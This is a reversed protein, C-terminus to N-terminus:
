RAMERRAERVSTELDPWPARGPVSDRLFRLVEAAQADSLVAGFAPMLPGMTEDQAEIGGLVARAANRPTPANLATNLLLSPYGAQATPTNNAHCIACAGAFITAGADVISGTAEPWPRRALEVAPAKGNRAPVLLSAFYVALARVDAEPAAQLAHTVDSMPGAVAGHQSDVGHRLYNFLEDATWPTPSWSKGAILPPSDWGEATGGAMVDDRQEAGLANRPTHCAGCHGLGQALYAGRNWQADQTPDPTYRGSRFYLLKWGALLPRVNLPFRLQNPPSVARVPQRARLFAYLARVDEDSVATFHDYPFAPYLHSGARDVGDQMARRFAAESWTGIGTEADPTINRSYLTGFPTPLARGGAYPAGGPATHCAVCNGLAALATGRAVLVADETGRVPSAIRDLAPRYALVASTAAAVLVLSAAVGLLRRWRRQPVAAAV